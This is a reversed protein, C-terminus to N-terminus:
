VTAKVLVLAGGAVALWYLPWAWPDLGPAFWLAALTLPLALWFSLCIPCNLGTVIWHGERWRLIARGRIRTYLAGPGDMYALDYALRYAALAACILMLM